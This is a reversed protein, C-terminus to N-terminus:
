LQFQDNAYGVNPVTDTYMHERVYNEIVSRDDTRIRDEGVRQYQEHGKGAILIIDGREASSLVSEIAEARDPIIRYQGDTESVANEIDRIIKMPDESRPNDSTIVTLDALQGSIKGMDTRRVMPREGGCGFVSVLRKPKYARLMTLVKELSAGNHAYDVFVHIGEAFPVEEMRGKLHFDSLADRLVGSQVGYRRCVSIAALANYVSFTGSYPIEIETKLVGGTKFRVGFRDTQVVSEAYLDCHGSLGFTEINEAVKGVDACIRPDDGNIVATSCSTFLRSKCEAYDDFTSHGYKGIHDASLNTYVCTDFHHRKHLGRQMAMSTMEFVVFRVGNKAMENYYRYEHSRAEEMSYFNNGIYTGITTEMAVNYGAKKLITYIMSVTTTKGKTGTVGILTMQKTPDGYFTHCLRDRLGNVQSVKIWTVGDGVSAASETDSIVAIAGRRIARGVINLKGSIANGSYIFLDKPRVTYFDWDVGDIEIDTDGRVSEIEIESLLEKLRM